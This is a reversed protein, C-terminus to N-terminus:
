IGVPWKREPGDDSGDARWRKILGKDIIIIIIIINCKGAPIYHVIVGHHFIKYMATLKTMELKNPEIVYFGFIGKYVARRELIIWHVFSFLSILFNLTSIWNNVFLAVHCHCSSSSQESKPRLAGFEMGFELESCHVCWQHHWVHLLITEQSSSCWQITMRKRHNNQDFANYWWCPNM